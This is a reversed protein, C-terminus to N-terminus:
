GRRHRLRNRILLWLILLVLVGAIPLLLKAASLSEARANYSTPTETPVPAKTPAPTPEPTSAETPAPTPEPTPTETPAPTPTETPAPTEEPTPEPTPVATPEPTAPIEVDTEARLPLTFWDRGGYSFTVTGVKQGASIPAVATVESRVDFTEDGALLLDLQRIPRFATADATDARVTLVANDANAVRVTETYDGVVTEAEVDTYEYTYVYDFFRIARRFLEQRKAENDDGVMGMQVCILTVDEKKAATVLCTGLATAGTKVGIAYPYYFERGPADSILRNSNRIDLPRSRLENTPITYDATSVIKRFTKNKLAEQTLLALDYPSTHNDRTNHGCPNTFDTDLMGLAAARENMVEAFAEESGSIRFALSIACDNGSILMLGYLLDEVRMPEGVALGLMTNTGGLLTAERPTVVVEDLSLTELTLLATMIKTTSGPPFAEHERRSLYCLSLDDADAVYFGKASASWLTKRYADERSERQEDTMGLSIGFPPTPSPEPTPELTPDPTPDSTGADTEALVTLPLLLAAILLFILLTRFSKM